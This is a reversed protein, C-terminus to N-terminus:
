IFLYFNVGVLTGIMENRPTWFISLAKNRQLPWVHHVVVNLIQSNENTRSPHAQRIGYQTFLFVCLSPDHLCRRWNVSVQIHRIQQFVRFVTSYSILFSPPENNALLTDCLCSCVPM